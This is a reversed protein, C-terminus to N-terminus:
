AQHAPFMSRSPGEPRTRLNTSRFTETAVRMMMAEELGEALSLGIIYFCLRQKGTAAGSAGTAISAATKNRTLYKLLFSLM